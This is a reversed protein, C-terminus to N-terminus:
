FPYYFYKTRVKSRNLEKEILEKAARVASDYTVYVKDYLSLWGYPEPCGWGYWHKRQIKYVVDGDIDVYQKIRFKKRAKKEIEFEKTTIM